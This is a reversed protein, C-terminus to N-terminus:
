KKSVQMFDSVLIQECSPDHQILTGFFRRVIERAKATGECKPHCNVFITRLTVRSSSTGSQIPCPFWRRELFHISHALNMVSCEFDELRPLLQWNSLKNLTSPCFQNHQFRLNLIVVNPLTELLAELNNTPIEINTTFSTPSCRSRGMFSIFEGQPWGKPYKKQNKLEFNLERLNPCIFPRIISGPHNLPDRDGVYSLHLDELHHLAITVSSHGTRNLDPGIAIICSVVNKCRRLLNEAINLPIAHEAISLSTIQAWSFSSTLDPQFFGYQINRGVGWITLNRLHRATAFMEFSPQIVLSLFNDNAIILELTTLAEFKIKHEFVGKLSSVEHYLRLRQIRHQIGHFLDFRCKNALGIDDLLTIPLSGSLSLFYRAREAMTQYPTYRSGYSRIRLKNWLHPEHLAVQRWQTCVQTIILSQPLKPAGAALVTGSASDLCYVFILALIETPMKKQPSLAVHIRARIDNMEDEFEAIADLALVIRTMENQVYEMAQAEDCGKWCRILHLKLAGHGIRADNIIDHCDTLNSREEAYIGEIIRLNDLTQNLLDRLQHEDCESILDNTTGVGPHLKIEHRHHTIRPM